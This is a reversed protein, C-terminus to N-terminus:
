QKILEKLLNNTNACDHFHNKGVELHVGSLVARGNKVLKTIIAPPKNELAEYRAIIKADPDSVDFYCGGHYYANLTEGNGLSIKTIAASNPTDDYYPAIEPISGIGVCDVLALERPGCIEDNRGKHFEIARCAFYAGACIGLYTGGDEVFRRLNANGTGNLKRGYPLDAGGPMVFISNPHLAAGHCVGAADLFTVSHGSFFSQLCSLSFDGVGDDRYIVINQAM